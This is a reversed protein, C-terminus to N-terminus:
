QERPPILVLKGVTRGSEIAAHAARVNEMPFEQVSPVRLDGSDVWGLIDRMAPEFIDVRSFLFSLNFALVSRNTATMELPNFRPTRLYDWALRLWQWPGLVGGRRPLMSHFGYIILKGCPALHSWSQAMTAVGNADFIAQFGGPAFEQAASWLDQSSKDIVCDAGLDRAAGVKHAAGVVACVLWGQLKCLQVLMSGVGGAASHVLVPHGSTIPAAQRTVAFHATMAVAPLAAAQSASLSAPRKFVYRQPVVVRSSYAGFMMVGFVKQGVHLDIVSSGVAEVVGSFEFGPVHSIRGGDGGDGSDSDGEDGAVAGGGFMNWSAYLGWRICVDAYNVGSAEVRVTVLESEEVGEMSPAAGQTARAGLRRAQLAGYGGARPITVCSAGNMPLPAGSADQSATRLWLGHGVWAAASVLALLAPLLLQPLLLELM